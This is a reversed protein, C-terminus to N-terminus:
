KREKRRERGKNLSSFILVGLYSGNESFGYHCNTVCKWKCRRTFVIVKKCIDPWGESWSDLESPDWSWPEKWLPLKGAQLFGTKSIRLWTDRQPPLVIKDRGHIACLVWQENWLSNQPVWCQECLHELQVNERSFGNPRQLAKCLLM